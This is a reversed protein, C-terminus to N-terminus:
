FCTVKDLLYCRKSADTLNHVYDELERNYEMGLQKYLAGLTTNCKDVLDEYRM